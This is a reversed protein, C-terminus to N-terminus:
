GAAGEGLDDPLLDSGPQPGDQEAGHDAGLVLWPELQFFKEAEILYRRHLGTWPDVHIHLGRNASRGLHRGLDPEDDLFVFPDGQAYEVAARAKTAGLYESFKAPVLELHSLHPLGLPKGVWENAHEQWTSGWVLFAGTKESLDMLWKGYVEHLNLGFMPGDPGYPKAEHRFGGSRLMDPNLVGDVDVFLYKM